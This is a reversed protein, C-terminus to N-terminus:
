PRFPGQLPTPALEVRFRDQDGDTLIFRGGLSPGEGQGGAFRLSEPRVTGEGIGTPGSWAWSGEDLAPQPDVVVALHLDLQAGGEGTFTFTARTRAGDRMGEVGSLQLPLTQWGTSTWEAVPDPTGGCAVVALASVLACLRLLQM